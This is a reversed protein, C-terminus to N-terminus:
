GLRRLGARTLALLQQPSPEGSEVGYLAVVGVRSGRRFFALETTANMGKLTGSARYAFSEVGVRPFSMRRFQLGAVKCTAYSGRNVSMVRRALSVSGANLAYSSINTADTEFQSGRPHGLTSCGGPAQVAQRVYGIPVDNLSLPAPAAIM